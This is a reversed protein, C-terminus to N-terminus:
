PYLRSRELTDQGISSFYSYTFMHSQFMTVKSFIGGEGEHIKKSIDVSYM